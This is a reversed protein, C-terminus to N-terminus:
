RISTNDAVSFYMEMAFMSGLPSVTVIGTAVLLKIMTVM